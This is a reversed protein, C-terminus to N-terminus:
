FSKQSHASFVFVKDNAIDFVRAPHLYALDINSRTLVSIVIKGGPKVVNFAKKICLERVNLELDQLVTICFAIDFIEESIFEEIPKVVVKVGKIKKKLLKESLVSPELATIDHGELREELIGTGAGIDLIKDNDAIDLAGLIGEVKKLQEERYLPEYSEAIANYYKVADM